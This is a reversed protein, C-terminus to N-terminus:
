RIKAFDHLPLIMTEGSAIAGLEGDWSEAVVISDHGMPRARFRHRALFSSSLIMTASDYLPTPAFPQGLKPNPIETMRIESKTQPRAENFNGDSWNPSARSPPPIDAM